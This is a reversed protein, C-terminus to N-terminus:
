QLPLVQHAHGPENAPIRAGCVPSAVGKTRVRLLGRAHRRRPLAACTRSKQGHTIERQPSAAPHGVAIGPGPAPRRASCSAPLRGPALSSSSLSAMAAAAAQQGPKAATPSASHLRDPTNPNRRPPPRDRRSMWRSSLRGFLLPKRKALSRDTMGDSSGSYPRRYPGRFGGAGLPQRGCANRALPCVFAGASPRPKRAPEDTPHIPPAVFPGRIPLLSRRCFTRDPLRAAAM